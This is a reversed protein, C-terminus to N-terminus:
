RPTRAHAARALDHDSSHLRDKGVIQETEHGKGAILVLDQSTASHIATEIARSRDLEEEIHPGSAIGLRIQAVISQPDEDRSRKGVFQTLCMPLGLRRM